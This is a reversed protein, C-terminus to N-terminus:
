AIVIVDLVEAYGEDVGNGSRLFHHIFKRSIFFRLFNAISILGKGTNLYNLRSFKGDAWLTIHAASMGHSVDVEM